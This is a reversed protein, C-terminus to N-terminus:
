LVCGGHAISGNVGRLFLVIFGGSFALLANYVRAKWMKEAMRKETSQVIFSFATERQIGKEIGSEREGGGRESEKTTKGTGRKREWARDRARGTVTERQWTM